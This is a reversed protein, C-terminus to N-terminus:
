QERSEGAARARWCTVSTRCMNPADPSTPSTRPCSRWAAAAPRPPCPWAPWGSATPSRVARIQQVPGPRRGRVRGRGPPSTAFPSDAAATKTTSAPAASGADAQLMQQHLQRLEASPDVGLEDAIVERAQAYAELAQAQRGSNFLARMLLAWMGERLPHDVLLRRIEGVVQGPGAAPWTPRIRLELAEIRAEELRSAEASVLPSPRCTPWRGAGRWLGLAEALLGAARQAAGAALAKRGEAALRAFRRADIDDAPVLLQYGPSRTM